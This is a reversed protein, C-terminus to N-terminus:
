SPMPVGIQEVATKIRQVLTNDRFEEYGPKPHPVDPMVFNKFSKADSMLELLERAGDVSDQPLLIEAIRLAVGAMVHALDSKTRTSLEAFTEMRPLASTLHAGRRAGEGGSAIRNAFNRRTIYPSDFMELVDKAIPKTKIRHLEIQLLRAASVRELLEEM